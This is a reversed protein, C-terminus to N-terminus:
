RTKKLMKIIPDEMSISNGVQESAARCGAFCSDYLHCEACFDPKPGNWSKVYDSEFIEQFSNNYINGAINPSHNCLRINGLHDLTLPKQLPNASCHGFGINPYDAPNLICIPTCVNSTLAISFEKATQNALTFAARLEELSPTLEDSWQIGAGGINFRNLMISSIGKSKLYILTDKLTAINHKTLVIVAVVRAGFSLLSNIRKESEQHAGEVGALLDHIKPDTSHFPLEFLGVGLKHMLKLDKEYGANGNTIITVTSGKLRVMLVLEAFRSFLFPEGGTFTFHDVKARRYLQRIARRAQKFSVEEPLSANPRKWINYCYKCLLNCKTSVEFSINSLHIKDTKM